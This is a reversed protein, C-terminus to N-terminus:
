FYIKFLMSLKHLDFTFLIIGFAFFNFTIFIGIWKGYKSTVYKKVAQSKTKRIIFNYINFLSLGIGHYLGWLIFNFTEGHWIGCVIFTVIICVNSLVIPHGKFYERKRLVRVLPWYIYDILWRTLSMHWNAWLQQINRKFFPRNFNEPLEFGLIRASGIAIDSYGSFDFYFYLTYAYVGLLVRYFPPVTNQFDLNILTYPFILAALVLKKFIGHIIRQLGKFLDEKLPMKEDTILQESFHNYRNIPGSIFSPFFFIYNLYNVIGMNSNNKRYSEILYHIMKFSFYSVGIFFYFSKTERISISVIKIIRKQLFEYKFFCLLAIVTLVALVAVLKRYIKKKIVEKRNLVDGIYYTITSFCILFVLSVWNFGPLSLLMLISICLLIINRQFCSFRIFRIVLVILLFFVWFNITYYFNFSLIGTLMNM